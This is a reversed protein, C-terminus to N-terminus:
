KDTNLPTAPLSFIRLSSSYKGGRLHAGSAAARARVVALDGGADSVGRVRRLTRLPYTSFFLLPPSHARRNRESPLAHTSMKRVISQECSTLMTASAPTVHEAATMSWSPPQVMRVGARLHTNRLEFRAIAFSHTFATVATIL